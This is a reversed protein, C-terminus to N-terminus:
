EQLFELSQRNFLAPHEVMVWHGCRSLLIVRADACGRALHTAGSPPCFQDDIGWWGLVPCTLEPLRPTLHPVALTTMVERPQLRAIALREDLTEDDLRAPDHLQLGFVKRMGDRTIGDAGLFVKMMTRIGAMGMYVERDELGGPAMLVLKSVRAPQRLALQIACAGGHSNGIVACRDVGLRDLLREIAGVVVDLPYSTVPKSSLGFGLNDVVLTRFGREAFYPFNHKFNSWGSAGPGSGHLFVLPTGAGADHYHLRLGDGIDAYSGEPISREGDRATM